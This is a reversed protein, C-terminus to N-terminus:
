HSEFIVSFGDGVLIGNQVLGRNSQLAECEADSGRSHFMSHILFCFLDKHAILTCVPVTDQACSIGRIVVSFNSVHVEHVVEFLDRGCNEMIGM